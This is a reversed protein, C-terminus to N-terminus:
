PRCQWSYRSGGYDVRKCTGQGPCCPTISSCTSGLPVCAQPAPPWTQTRHSEANVDSLSGALGMLGVIIGFIMNRM